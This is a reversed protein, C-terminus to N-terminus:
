GGAGLVRLRRFGPDFPPLKRPNAMNGDFTDEPPLFGQAQLEAYIRKRRRQLFAIFEGPTYFTTGEVEHNVECELEDHERCVHPRSEYIRCRNDEQLHQCRTEFQVLWDEGDFHISVRDHYLNWLLETARRVTTPPDADATVYTCCLGCTLCGVQRRGGPLTPGLGQADFEVARPAAKKKTAKKKAAKKKAAPRTDLPTAPARPTDAKKKAAM